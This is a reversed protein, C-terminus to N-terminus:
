GGIKGISNNTIEGKDIRHEAPKNKVYDTIVKKLTEPCNIYERLEKGSESHLCNMMVGAATIRIRNCFKCFKGSIPTIFGITAGGIKYYRATEGPASPVELANKYRALIDDAAVSAGSTYCTTKSFPMLEIFRVAVKERESFELFKQFGDGDNVGKQLVANIKVEGILDKVSYFGKLADALNGGRTINKYIDSDLSDISINVASFDSEKLINAFEPLKVGNTTIALKKFGIEKLGCFLSGVGKRVLPEGGTIRLKEVGSEKLARALTLMEEIRLIESHRIKRIGEPPMCYVCKLNCLDTVSLRAYNIVRGFGDLM